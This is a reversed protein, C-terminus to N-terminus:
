TLYFTDEEGFQMVRCVLVDDSIVSYYFVVTRNDKHAALCSLSGCNVDLFDVYERHTVKNICFREFVSDFTM